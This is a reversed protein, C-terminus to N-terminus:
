LPDLQDTPQFVSQAKKLANSLEDMAAQQQPDLNISYADILGSLACISTCIDNASNSTDVEDIVVVDYDDGEDTIRFSQPEETLEAIFEDNDIVEQLANMARAVDYNAYIASLNIEDSSKIYSLSVDVYSAAPTGEENMEEEVDESNEFDEQMMEAEKVSVLRSDKLVKDIFQKVKSSAIDSTNDDTVPNGDVRLNAKDCEFHLNVKNATESPTKTVTVTIKNPEQGQYESEVWSDFDDKKYCEISTTASEDDEDGNSNQNIAVLNNDQLIKNVIKEEFEEKKKKDINMTKGNFDDDKFDSYGDCSVEVYYINERNKVPSLKIVLEYENENVDKVPIRTVQKLVGMDNEYEAAYGMINDIGKFLMQFLADLAPGGKVDTKNKM